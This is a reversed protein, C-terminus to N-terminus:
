TGALSKTNRSLCAGAAVSADSFRINDKAKAQESLLKSMLNDDIVTKSQVQVPQPIAMQKAQEQRVHSLKSKLQLSDCLTAYHRDRNLLNRRSSDSSATSSAYPKCAVKCSISLISMINHARLHIRSASSTGPFLAASTACRMNSRRISCNPSSFTNM